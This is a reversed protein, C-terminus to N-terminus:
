LKGSKVRREAELWDDLDSGHMSGRKEFLEYAKLKVSEEVHGTAGDQMRNKSKAATSNQKRTIRKVM